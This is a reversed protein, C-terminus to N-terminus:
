PRVTRWNSHGLQLYPLESEYLVRNLGCTSYQVRLNSTPVGTQLSEVAAEIGHM